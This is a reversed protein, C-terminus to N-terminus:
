RNLRRRRREDVDEGPRGFEDVDRVLERDPVDVDVHQRRERHEPGHQESARELTSQQQHQERRRRKDLRSQRPVRPPIQLLQPRRHRTLRRRDLQVRVPAPRVHVPRGRRDIRNM